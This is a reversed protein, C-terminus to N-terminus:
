LLDCIPDFKGLFNTVAIISRERQILLVNEDAQFKPLDGVSLDAAQSSAGKERMKRFLELTRVAPLYYDKHLDEVQAKVQNLVEAGWEPHPESVAEKARKYAEKIARAAKDHNADMSEPTYEFEDVLVKM